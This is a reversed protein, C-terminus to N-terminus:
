RSKGLIGFNPTRTPNSKSKYIIKPVDRWLLKPDYRYRDTAGSLLHKKRVEDYGRGGIGKQWIISGNSNIKLLWLDGFGKSAM